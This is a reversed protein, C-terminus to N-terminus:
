TKLNSNISCSAPTGAAGGRNVAASPAGRRLMPVTPAAAPGDSCLKRVTPSITHDGSCSSTGAPDAWPPSAPLVLYAYLLLSAFVAADVVTMAAVAPRGATISVAM